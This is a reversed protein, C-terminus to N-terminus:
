SIVEPGVRASDLMFENNYVTLSRSKCKVLYYLSLILILHDFSFDNADLKKKINRAL